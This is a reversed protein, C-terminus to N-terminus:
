NSCVRSTSPRRKPIPPPQSDHTLSSFGCVLAPGSVSHMLLIMIPIILDESGPAGVSSLRSSLARVAKDYHIAGSVEIDPQHHHKGFISLSFARCAELSLADIKGEASMQLWPTGYSSWVFNDFLYAFQIDERFAVLSMDSPVFGHLNDNSGLILSTPVRPNSSPPEKTTKASGSAATEAENSFSHFRLELKREYGACTYGAKECRKCTPRSEDPVGRCYAM